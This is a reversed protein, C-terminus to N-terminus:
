QKGAAVVIGTVQHPKNAQLRSLRFAVRDNNLFKVIIHDGSIDYGDPRAYKQILQGFTAGFGLGRRTKVKADKLGITEIQVVRNYKDLVFAYRAGTRNYVWRTYEVNDASQGSSSGGGGTGGGSAGAVSPRNRGESDEGERPPGNQYMSQNGLGFPDGILGERISLQAEAANARGGGGASGGGGGRGAGGATGGGGGGGISSGGGLTVAQIENPSGFLNILRTGSDYLKVGILGTEASAKRKNAAASSNQAVVGVSTSLVASVAIFSLVRSKLTM